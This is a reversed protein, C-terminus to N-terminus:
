RTIFYGNILYLNNGKTPKFAILGKITFWEAVSKKGFCYIRGISFQKHGM